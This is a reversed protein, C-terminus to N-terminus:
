GFRSLTIIFGQHGFPYDAAMRPFSDSIGMLCPDVNSFRSPKPWPCFVGFRDAGATHGLRWAPDVSAGMCLRAMRSYATRRPHVTAHLHLFYAGSCRLASGRSVTPHQRRRSISTTSTHRNSRQSSRLRDARWVEPVPVDPRRSRRASRPAPGSWVLPGRLPLSRCHECGELALDESFAYPSSESMGPLVAFTKAPRSSCGHV